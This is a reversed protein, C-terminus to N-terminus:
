PPVPSSTKGVTDLWGGLRPASPCTRPEGEHFQRLLAVRQALRVPPM